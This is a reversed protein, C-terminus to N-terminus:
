NLNPKFIYFISLFFIFFSFPFLIAISGPGFLGMEAWRALDGSRTCGLGEWAGVGPAGKGAEAGARAIEV